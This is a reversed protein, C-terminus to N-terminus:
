AKKFFPFVLTHYIICGVCYNFVSDLVALVAFITIVITAHVPMNLTIFISGFMACVFGLRSAFIKPAKDVMKPEWGLIKSILNAIFCVPSYRTYGFARVGYDFAVIYIIIPNLTWIFAIMMLVNLFATLRSVNSDIRDKSIPCVINKFM